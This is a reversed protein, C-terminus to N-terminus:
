GDSSCDRCNGKESVCRGSGRRPQGAGDGPRGDHRRSCERHSGRAGSGDMPTPRYDTFHKIRFTIHVGSM